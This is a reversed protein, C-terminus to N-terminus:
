VSAWRLGAPFNRSCTWTKGAGGAGWVLLGPRYGLFVARVKDRLMTSKRQISALHPDDPPPDGRMKAM